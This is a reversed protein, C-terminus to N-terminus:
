VRTSVRLISRSLVLLEWTIFDTLKDNAWPTNICEARVGFTLFQDTEKRYGVRCVAVLKDWCM